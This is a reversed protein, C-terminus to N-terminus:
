QYAYKDTSSKKSKAKGLIAIVDVTGKGAPTRVSCSSAICNSGEVSTKGFEFLTGPRFNTGSVTVQSGGGAPGQARFVSSVSPTLPKGDNFVIKSSTQSVGDATTVIVPKKGETSAPALVLIETDSVVEIQTARQEGFSVGTTGDLNTGEITVRTPLDDAGKNPSVKKILPAPGEPVYTNKNDPRETSLGGEARIKVDIEARIKVFPSAFGGGVAQMKEELPPTIATISTPSNVTYSLAQQEGFLVEKVNVFNAGTIQVQQHGSTLYADPSVLTVTPLGKEAEKAAEAEEVAEPSLYTYRDAPVAETTGKPTKVRVDLTEGASGAPTSATISEASNVKFSVSTSGFEVATAEGLDEGTITVKTGGAEPGHTSSLALVSSAFKTTFTADAGLTPVGEITSTIRYHYSTLESLGGLLASVPVPTEGSGPSSSCAISSGYANTLGYEFKCEPEHGHPNVTGNLTATAGTIATAPTTQLGAARFELTAEGKVFPTELMKAYFRCFHFEDTDCNAGCAPVSYTVTSSTKFAGSADTEIVGKDVGCTTAAQQLELETNPPFGSGEVSVPVSGSVPLDHNPTVVLSAAGALATLLFFLSAALVALVRARGCSARGPRSAGRRVHREPLSPVGQRGSMESEEILGM